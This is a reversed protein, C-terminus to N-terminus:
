RFTLRQGRSAAWEGPVEPDFVLWQSFVDVGVLLPDEPLPALFTAHGDGAGSGSLELVELAVLKGADVHIPAGLLTTGAPAQAASVALVAVSGGLADRVGLKFDQSGLLPPASAIQRPLAGGTGALGQGFPASFAASQESHLTPRDFPFSEAAVRPDTLGGDLFDTVAAVQGPSLAIPAPNLLLPDKNQPFDGGGGNYFAVAAQLTPVELSGTHFFRRRLGVNRLSPVKFKGRDAFLGTVEMRGSDEQWPRLGVNRFTFNSFVPATHCANCRGPGNFVNLGQQQQQTLQNLDFPTQDPILTRQYTALAFALRVATIEPTGFAAEFLDGYTTGGAVAAAMDPPLDSALALPEVSELKALADALTRGAQAMEVDSLIPGLSQSELAGGNPLVVAGTEPDTFTGSARGDWFATPSYAAMFTTQAWRGTAQPDLDFNATPAYHGFANQGRVGPSGGIDDDTGLLGDAGPHISAPGLRPESGGAGPIHCTGCAMTNDSSLQEEWFLLKGLLAKEVTIPNGAPVPPEPLPGGGPPPPGGQALAASTFAALSLATPLALARAFRHHM